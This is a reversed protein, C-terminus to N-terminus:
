EWASSSKVAHQSSRLPPSSSENMPPRVFSSSVFPRVVSWILWTLVSELEYVSAEDDLLGADGDEDDVVDDDGGEIAYCVFM